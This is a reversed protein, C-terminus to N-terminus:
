YAHTDRRAATHSDRAARAVAVQISTKMRESYQKLSLSNSLLISDTQDFLASRRDRKLSYEFRRKEFTDLSKATNLLIISKGWEMSANLNHTLLSSSDITSVDSEATIDSEDISFTSSHRDDLYIFLLFIENFSRRSVHAHSV